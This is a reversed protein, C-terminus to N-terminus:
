LFWLEFVRASLGGLALALVVAGVARKPFQTRIILPYHAFIRAGLNHM